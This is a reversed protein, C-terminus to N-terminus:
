QKAEWFASCKLLDCNHSSAYPLLRRPDSLPRWDTRFRSTTTILTCVHLKCHCFLTSASDPLRRRIRSQEKSRNANSQKNGPAYTYNAARRSRPLLGPRDSPYRSWVIDLETTSLSIKGPIDVNRFEELHQKTNIDEYRFTVSFVSVILKQNEFIVHLKFQFCKM